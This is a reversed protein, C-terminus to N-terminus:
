EAMRHDAQNTHTCKGPRKQISTSMERLPRLTSECEVVEGGSEERLKCLNALDESTWPYGIMRRQEEPTFRLWYELGERYRRLDELNVSGYRALIGRQEATFGLLAMLEPKLEKIMRLDEPQLGAKPRISLGEGEIAVSRGDQELQRLVAVAGRVKAGRATFGPASM